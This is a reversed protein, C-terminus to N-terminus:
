RSIHLHFLFGTLAAEVIGTLPNEPGYLFVIIREKRRVQIQQPLLIAAKVTVMAETDSTPDLAM